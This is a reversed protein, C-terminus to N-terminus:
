ARRRLLVTAGLLVLALSGPEPAAVINDVGLTSPTSDGVWSPSSQASLIRLEGVGALVTALSDSGTVQAMGAPSLDFSVPVWGSNPPLHVATSSAYREAFDGEVAVRLYLDTAGQNAVMANIRDVGAAIYDGAWQSQNYMIQRSGAGGGGTAINQVYRDGAGAPGGTAVNTPPNPSTIGESWGMTTGDQFTDVQGLVVTAQAAPALAWMGVAAALLAGATPAIFNRRQRKM